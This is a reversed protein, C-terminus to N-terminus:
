RAVSASSCAKAWAYRVLSCRQGSQVSCRGSGSSYVRGTDFLSRGGASYAWADHFVAAGPEARAEDVQRRRDDRHGQGPGDAQAGDDAVQGRADDDPGEADAQDAVRLVHQVEGFEADHQHQEQHAQLQLRAPQPGHSPGDEAPAAHLGQARGRQHQAHGHGQPHVPSQAQYRAQPQRQRGGGDAQRRPRHIPRRGPTTCRCACGTTCRGPTPPRDPGSPKQRPARPSAAWGSSCRWSARWGWTRRPAPCCWGCRIRRIGRSTASRWSAASRSAWCSPGRSAWCMACGCSTTPWCISRANPWRGRVAAAM